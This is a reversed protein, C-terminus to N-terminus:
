AALMEALAQLIAKVSQQDLTGLQRLLRTKDLARLHDLAVQGSVGGFQCVIRFPARFGGATLPAVILTHLRDNMVDPSVIVAPRTKSMEAGRTPDLRVLWVEFRKMPIPVQGGGNRGTGVM